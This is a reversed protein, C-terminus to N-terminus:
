SIETMPHQHLGCRDPEPFSTCLLSLLNLIDRLVTSNGDQTFVGDGERSNHSGLSVEIRDNRISVLIPDLPLRECYFSKLGIEHLDIM